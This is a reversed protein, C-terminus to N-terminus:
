SLCISVRHPLLCLFVSPFPKKVLSPTQFLLCVCVCVCMTNLEDGVKKDGTIPTFGWGTFVTLFTIFHVHISSVSFVYITSVFSVCSETQSRFILPTRVGLGHSHFEPFPHYVSSSTRCTSAVSYVTLTTFLLIRLIDLLHRAIVCSIKKKM